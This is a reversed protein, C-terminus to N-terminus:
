PKRLWLEEPIGLLSLLEGAKKEVHKKSRKGLIYGPLSVNELVSLEPLLNHFQFVFGIERNRFRSLAKDGMATVDVGGLWVHGEDPTDLTGLIHLLTTKGAGSAGVVSIMESAGVRMDVGKLICAAGYSKKVGSIELITSSKDVTQTDKPM